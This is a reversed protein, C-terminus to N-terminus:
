SDTFYVNIFGVNLDWGGWDGTSLSQSEIYIRATSYSSVDVKITPKVTTSTNSTTSYIQSGNGYVKIYSNVGSGEGWINTYFQANVYKCGQTDMNGTNAYCSVSGNSTHCKAGYFTVGDCTITGTEEGWWDDGNRGASANPCNTRSGNTIAYYPTSATWVTTGNFIVKKVATGNYNIAKITTGNYILSM